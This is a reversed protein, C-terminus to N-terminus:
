VSASTSQNQKTKRWCCFRSEHHIDCHLHNNYINNHLLQIIISVSGSLIRSMRFPRRIVEHSFELEIIPTLDFHYKISFRVSTSLNNVSGTAYKIIAADVSYQVGVFRNTYNFFTSNGASILNLIYEYLSRSLKSKSKVKVFTKRHDKGYITTRLFKWQSLAITILDMGLWSWMRYHKEEAVFLFNSM